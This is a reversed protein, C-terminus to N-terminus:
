ESTLIVGMIICGFIFYPWYKFIFNIINVVGMYSPVYPTDDNFKNLQKKSYGMVCDGDFKVTYKEIVHDEDTYFTFGNIKEEKYKM